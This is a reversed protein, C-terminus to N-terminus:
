TMSIQHLVKEAWFRGLTLNENIRKNETEAAEKAQKM